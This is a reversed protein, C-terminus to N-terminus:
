ETDETEYLAASEVVEKAARAENVDDKSAFLEKTTMMAQNLIEVREEVKSNPTWELVNMDTDISDLTLMVERKVEDSSWNTAYAAIATKLKQIPQSM